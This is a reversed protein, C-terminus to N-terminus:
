GVQGPDIAGDQAGHDDIGDAEFGIQDINVDAGSFTVAGQVRGGDEGVDQRFCRDDLGAVLVASIKAGGEAGCLHRKEIFDAGDGAGDLRDLGMLLPRGAQGGGAEPSHRGPIEGQEAQEGVGGVDEAPGAAHFIFGRVVFGHFLQDIRIDGHDKEGLREAGLGGQGSVQRAPMRMSEIHVAIDGGAVAGLGLDLGEKLQRRFLLCCAPSSM